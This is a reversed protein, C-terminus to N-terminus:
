LGSKSRRKSHVAGLRWDFYVVASTKLTMIHWSAVCQFICFFFNYYNKLDQKLTIQM